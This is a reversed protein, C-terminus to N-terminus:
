KAAVVIQYVWPTAVLLQRRVQGFGQASCLPWLPQAMYERWYVEHLFEALLANVARDATQWPLARQIADFIILRGGPELLRYSETIVQQAIGQPLEHFLLSAFVLDASAAGLGTKEAPAHLYCAKSSTGARKIWHRAAALQYPSLDILTFRMGAGEQMLETGLCATGCGLDVFRTFPQDYCLRKLAPLVHRLRFLREVLSWSIAQWESLYGEALGHHPVLYYAPYQVDPDALEGAEHEWDLDGYAEQASPVLLAALLRKIRENRDDRTGSTISRGGHEM